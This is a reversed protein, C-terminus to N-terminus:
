GGERKVIYDVSNVLHGTSILQKDFGKRAISAPALPAGEFTAIKQVLEGKIAAGMLDLAGGADYGNRKLLAATDAGWHPSDEVVMQRFCPRPPIGIKPSGYEQVAAVLAVPTGNPYTAGPLFGVDLAAGSALGKAIRDLERQWKEGGRLKAM